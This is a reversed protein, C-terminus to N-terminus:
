YHAVHSEGACAQLKCYNCFVGISETSATPPVKYETKRDFEYVAELWEWRTIVYLLPLRYSIESLTLLFNQLINCWETSRLTLVIRMESTLYTVQLDAKTLQLTCYILNNPLFIARLRM